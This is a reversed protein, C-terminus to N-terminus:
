CIDRVQESPTMALVIMYVMAAMDIGGSSDMCHVPSSSFRLARLLVQTKEPLSAVDPLNLDTCRFPNVSSM